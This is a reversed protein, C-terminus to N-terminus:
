VKAHKLLKKCTGTPVEKASHRPVAFIQGNKNKWLDHNSGHEFFYAGNNKLEKILESYKLKNV